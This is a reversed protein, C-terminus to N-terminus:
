DKRLLDQTRATDETGRYFCIKGGRFRWWHHIDLFAASGVRGSGFSARAILEGLVALEAQRGILASAVSGGRRCPLGPPCATTTM